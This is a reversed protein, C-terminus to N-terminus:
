MSARKMRKAAKKVRGNIWNAKIAYRMYQLPTEHSMFNLRANFMWRPFYRHLILLNNLTATFVHPWDEKFEPHPVPCAKNRDNDSLSTSELKAIVAASFVQQCFLISQLTISGKSFIAKAEKKALGDASCNVFLTKPSYPVNGEKLQIEESTIRNIRGKRIINQVTRLKKLETSDITACKWKSPLKNTDLRLIGGEKEMALFVDDAKTAKIMLEGHMLVQKAVNGVQLSERNFIWADNPAIWSIHNADVGQDLLYLVADMGTKGNGVVCFYEWQSHGKYLDNLAVLSVGEDVTFKPPHTSPIEVNMYTADVIKKNIKYEITKEPHNLNSIKNNGLYSHQNLFQVHGSSELRNLVKEYYSLIETKSSLDSSGNGLTLSNVGYFAAPQHLRVYPYADVWHGGIKDRRDVITIHSNPKQTHLEDAFAVGMAGAGIILYDTEKFTNENILEPM